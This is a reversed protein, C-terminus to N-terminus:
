TAPAPPSTSIRAVLVISSRRIDQAVGSRSALDIPQLARVAIEADVKGAVSAHMGNEASLRTM